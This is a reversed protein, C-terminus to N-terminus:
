YMDYTKKYLMSDRASLFEYETSAAFVFPSYNGEMSAPATFSAHQYPLRPDM